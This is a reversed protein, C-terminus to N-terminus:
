DMFMESIARRYIKKAVNRGNPIMQMYNKMMIGSNLEMVFLENTGTEIVDISCFGIDVKDIIKTVFNLLREKMNENVDFPIAGKSLNFQWGYEYVENKELVQSYKDEALKNTFYYSNFDILLERITKVGDGFVIPRAKGYMFICKNKLVILRYEAKIKYFPCISISFSKTFIRDLYIPLSQFDTLHYVGNGCTSDNAKMVINQNNEKFFQLVNEYANCGKAYETKNNKNFIIKHEIIPIGKKKLVEFTAYKDDIISGFGHNNLDFKYGSIFKTKKNKELMIVWNKSLVSFKIKEEDCIEKILGHFEEM